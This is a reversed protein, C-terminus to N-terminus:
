RWMGPDVQDMAEIARGFEPDDVWTGAFDDLDHQRREEEALGLGQEMARLATQNLRRQEERAKRRLDRDLRPSVRRITYQTQM